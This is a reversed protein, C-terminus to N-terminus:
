RLEGLTRAGFDEMVARYSTRLLAEWHAVPL